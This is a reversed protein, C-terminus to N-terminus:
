IVACVLNLLPLLPLLSSPSSSVGPTSSRRKADSLTPVGIVAHLWPLTRSPSPSQALYTFQQPFGWSAATDNTGFWQVDPDSFRIKPYLHKYITVHM